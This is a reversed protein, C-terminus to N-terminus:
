VSGGAGLSPPSLGMGSESESLSGSGSRSVLSGGGGGRAASNVSQRRVKARYNQFWNRVAKRSMGIREGIQSHELGTPTSNEEFVSLLVKLQEKTARIGERSQRSTTLTSTSTNPISAPSSVTESETLTELLLLPPAPAAAQHVAQSSAAASPPIMPALGMLSFRRNHQDTPPSSPIILQNSPIPPSPLSSVLSSLPPLIVVVQQQEHVPEESGVRSGPLSATPTQFLQSGPMHWPLQAGSLSASNAYMSKATSPQTSSLLLLSVIAIEQLEAESRFLESTM